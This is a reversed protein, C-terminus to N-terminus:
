YIHNLYPTINKSYYKHFYNKKCSGFPPSHQLRRSTRGGLPWATLQNARKKMRPIGFKHPKQGKNEGNRKSALSPEKQNRDTQIRSNTHFANIFPECCCLFIKILRTSM